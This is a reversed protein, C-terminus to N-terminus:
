AFIPSRKDFWPRAEELQAALRLLYWTEEPKDSKDIATNIAELVNRWDQKQSYISAKLVYATAVHQEPPVKCFWLDLNDFPLDGLDTTALVVGAALVLGLPVAMLWGFYASGPYLPRASM